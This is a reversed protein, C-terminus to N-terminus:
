FVNRMRRRDAPTGPVAGKKSFLEACYEAGMGLAECPKNELSKITSGACADINLILPLLRL